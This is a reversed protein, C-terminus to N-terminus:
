KRPMGLGLMGMTDGIQKMSGTLDRLADIRNDDSRVLLDFRDKLAAIEEVLAGLVNGVTARDPGALAHREQEIEEETPLAQRLGFQEQVQRIAEGQVDTRAM